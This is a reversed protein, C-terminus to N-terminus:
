VLLVNYILYMVYHDSLSCLTLCVVTSSIHTNSYKSQRLPNKFSKSVFERVSLGKM